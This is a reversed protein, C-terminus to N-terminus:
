SGSEVPVSGTVAWVIGAAVVFLMAGLAVAFGQGARKFLRPPPAVGITTCISREASDVAQSLIMSAHSQQSGSRNEYNEYAAQAARVLFYLLPPYAVIRSVIAGANAGVAEGLAFLGRVVDLAVGAVTGTTIGLIAAAETVGSKAKAVLDEPHLANVYSELSQAIADAGDVRTRIANAISRGSDVITRTVEAKTLVDANQTAQM